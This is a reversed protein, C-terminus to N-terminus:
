IIQITGFSHTDLKLNIYEHSGHLTTQIFRLLAFAFNNTSTLSLYLLKTLLVQTISLSSYKVTKSRGKEALFANASTLLTWPLEELLATWSPSL